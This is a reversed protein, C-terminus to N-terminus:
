VTSPGIASAVMKVGINPRLLIFRSGQPRDRCPVFCHANRRNLVPGPRGSRLASARSTRRHQDDLVLAIEGLLNAEFQLRAAMRHLERLGHVIRQPRRARAAGGHQDDISHQMALIPKRDDLRQAAFAVRRRRQHDARERGDVLSNVPQLRAAVVVQDLRELNALQRRPDLRKQAPAAVRPDSSQLDAREFHIQDLPSHPAVALQDIQKRPFERSKSYKM